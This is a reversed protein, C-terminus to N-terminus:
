LREITAQSDESYEDGEIDPFFGVEVDSPIDYESGDLFVLKYHDEGAYQRVRVNNLIVPEITEFLTILESDLAPNYMQVYVWAGNEYKHHPVTPAYAPSGEVLGAKIANLYNASGKM